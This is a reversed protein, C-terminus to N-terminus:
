NLSIVIYKGIKQETSPDKVIGMDEMDTLGVIQESDDKQYDDENYNPKLILTTIM